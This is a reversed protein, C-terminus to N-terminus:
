RKIYKFHETLSHSMSNADKLMDNLDPLDKYKDTIYSHRLINVSTKKGLITNLRQNLKVSSLKNERSDILLYNNDPYYAKILKIWKNLITKLKTPIAVVQKGLFKSTKYTNFTFEFPKVNMYNGSNDDSPELKMESWDLLRRIPIFEGSMLCLIIYNQITQIQKSTLTKLKYLMNSQQKYSKLIEKLENQTIWNENEKLSKKQLQKEQNYDNGDEMMQKRYIDNNTLVVLANLYSKRKNVSVNKLLDMFKITDNFKDLDIDDDSSYVKSYLNRLISDYTKISSNSLTNRKQKLVDKLDM